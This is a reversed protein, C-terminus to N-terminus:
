RSHRQESLTYFVEVHDVPGASIDDAADDHEGQGAPATAEAVATLNSLYRRRRKITSASCGIRAALEASSLDTYTRIAEDLHDQDTHTRRGGDIGVSRDTVVERATTTGTERRHRRRQTATTGAVFGDVPPGSIADALCQEFRPCLRSCMDRALDMADRYAAREEPDTPAPEGLIGLFLAQNAQCWTQNARPPTCVYEGVKMQPPATPSTRPLAIM